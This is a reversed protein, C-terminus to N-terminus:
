EYNTETTIINKLLINYRSENDNILRILFNEGRLKELLPKGRFSLALPNLTKDIRNLDNDWIPINNDQNRVRNYFYNFTHKGELPTFLIEQSNTKTIPYRNSQSATKQPILELLHSNNTNNYIIVKNFGKEKDQSFDWLNQYRKAEINLSITNLIKNVNQNVVPAEIIFPYLRGQFVQYSSNGHNHEWM